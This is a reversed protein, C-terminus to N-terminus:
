CKELAPCSVPSRPRTGATEHALEKSTPLNESVSFSSILHVQLGLDREAVFNRGTQTGSGVM